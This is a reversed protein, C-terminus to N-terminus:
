APDLDGRRDELTAECQLCTHAGLEALPAWPVPDTSAM